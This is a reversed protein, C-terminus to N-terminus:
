VHDVQYIPDDQNVRDEFDLEIHGNKTTLPIHFTLKVFNQFGTLPQEYIVDGKKPGNWVGVEGKTMKHCRKVYEGRGGVLHVPFHCVSSLSKKSSM